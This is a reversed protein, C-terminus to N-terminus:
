PAAQVPPGTRRGLAAACGITVFFAAAIPAAGLAYDLLGSVFFATLSAASGIALGPDLGSGWRVVRRLSVALAGYLALLAALGVAGLEVAMTLVLSHPHPAVASGTAPIGYSATYSGYQFAGMGFIPRDVFMEPAKDWLDFRSNTGATTKAETLRQVLKGPDAVQTVPNSGVIAGILVLPLALLALKRFPAWFGLVVFAFALGIFAGRSVTLTLGTLALAACASGVMRETTTGRLAFVISIPITLGFLMGLANPSGLGATARTVDAGGFVAGVLPQPDVLAVLGAVGGCVALTLLLARVQRDTATHAICVAIVLLTGWTVVQRGVLLPDPAFLLGAVNAVWLALFALLAPHRPLTVPASSVWRLFWGLAALGLVAQSPGVLGPAFGELPITLVGFGIAHVPWAIAACLAVLVLVVAVPLLPDAPAMAVILASFCAAAVVLVLTLSASLTGSSRALGRATLLM